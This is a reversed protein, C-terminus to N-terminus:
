DLFFHYKMENQVANNRNLAECRLTVTLKESTKRAIFCHCVKYKKNRRNTGAHAACSIRKKGIKRKALRWFFLELTKKATM